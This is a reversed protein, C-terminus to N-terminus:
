MKTKKSSGSTALLPTLKKASAPSKSFSKNSLISTEVDEDEKLDIKLSKEEGDDSDIDSWNSDSEDTDKSIDGKSSSSSVTSFEMKLIRVTEYKGKKRPIKKKITKIQTSTAHYM